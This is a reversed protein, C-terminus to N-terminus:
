SEVSPKVRSEAELSALFRRVEPMQESAISNSLLALKLNGVCMQDITNASFCTIRTLSTELNKIRQLEQLRSVEHQRELDSALKEQEKKEAHAVLDERTLKILEQSVELATKQRTSFVDAAIEKIGKWIESAATKLGTWTESILNGAWDKLESLSRVQMLASCHKKAGEYVCCAKDGLWSCARALYGSSETQTATTSSTEPPSATTTTQSSQPFLLTSFSQLASQPAASVDLAQAAPKPALPDSGTAKRASQEAYVM